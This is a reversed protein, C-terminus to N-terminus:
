MMNLCGCYECKKTLKWNLTYYMNETRKINFILVLCHPSLQKSLTVVYVKSQSPNQRVLMLRNWIIRTIHWGKTSNTQNNLVRIHKECTSLYSVITQWPRWGIYSGVVLIDHILNVIGYNLLMCRRSEKIDGYSTKNIWAVCSTEQCVGPILNYLHQISTLIYRPHTQFYQMYIIDTLHGQLM